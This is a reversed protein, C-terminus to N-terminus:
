ERVELFRAFVITELFALIAYILAIDLYLGNDFVKALIAILGTIVINVTDLALVRDFASPGVILRLVSLLVGLGILSFVVANIM